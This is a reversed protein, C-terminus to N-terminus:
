EQSLDWKARISDKKRTAPNLKSTNQKPNKM